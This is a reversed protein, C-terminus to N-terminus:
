ESFTWLSVSAYGVTESWKIESLKVFEAPYSYQQVDNDVQMDDASCYLTLNECVNNAPVRESKFSM